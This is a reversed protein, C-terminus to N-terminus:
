GIDTGPLYQTFYNLHVHTAKFLAKMWIVVIIIQNLSERNQHQNAPDRSSKTAHALSIICQM